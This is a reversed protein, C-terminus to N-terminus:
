ATTLRPACALSMAPLGPRSRHLNPMCCTLIPAGRHIGGLLSQSWDLDHHENARQPRQEIACRSSPFGRVPDKKLKGTCHFSATRNPRYVRDSGRSVSRWHSTEDVADLDAGNAPCTKATPGDATRVQASFPM